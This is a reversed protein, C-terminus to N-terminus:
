HTFSWLVLGAERGSTTAMKGKVCLVTEERSLRFHLFNPVAPSLFPGQIESLPKLSIKSRPVVNM